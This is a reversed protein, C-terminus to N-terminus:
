RMSVSSSPSVRSTVHLSGARQESRGGPSMTTRSMWGPPSWARGDRAGRDPRARARGAEQPGGADSPGSPWCSRGWPASGPASACGLSDNGGDEDESSEGSDPGPDADTDGDTDTDTDSGSAATDDGKDGCAVFTPLCLLLLTSIRTM